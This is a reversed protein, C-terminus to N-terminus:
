ERESVRYMKCYASDISKISGTVAYARSRCGGKCRDGVPCDANKECTLNRFNAMRNQWVDALRDTKINGLCFEPATNYTLSPCLNISGEHTIYLFNDGVGCRPQTPVTFEGPNAVNCPTDKGNLQNLYGVYIAFDDCNNMAKGRGLPMILDTAYPLKLEFRLYDSLQDLETFNHEGVMINVSVPIDLEKLMHISAITKELSGRVGRFDDHVQNSFGDISTVVKRVQFEKLKQAKAEDLLTLNSFLVTAMGKKQLYELIELIDERLFLEGGTLDFQWVGIEHAQDILGKVEETTLQNEHAVQMDSQNYCHRCRLNCQPTIEFFIRKFVPSTEIKKVNAFGRQHPDKTLIGFEHLQNLFNIIHEALPETQPPLGDNEQIIQLIKFSDQNIAFEKFPARKAVYFKSDNESVIICDRSVYFNDM